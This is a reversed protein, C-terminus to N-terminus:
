SLELGLDEFFATDSMPRGLYAEISENEDRSSGSEFIERRLKLGLERNLIGKKKFGSFLDAAIVDAWAYGYYGSAYGVMHGWGAQFSTDPPLPLFIDESMRRMIETSDKQTGESHFELDARAFSLQRLYMMGIGAREAENLKKVMDPTIKKTPDKHQSIRQIMEFDWVWNEMIQSPAEVYDWAVHTGAFRSFKSRTLLTHLVHGFEHFLTEVEGHSLLCPDQKPFNCVMADVPRQYIQDPRLKGSILTFAAAHGYKGPRPFLDLYFYGLEEGQSDCVKFLRIEDAWKYFSASPQEEIKLSFLESVIGIMGELVRNLPFFEKLVQQDIDFTRKKHLANYYSYDWSQIKAKPDGTEQIKLKVLDNLEARAKIKLKKEFSKLFDLVTKSTKAMREEIVYDNYSTYGLLHAIEDRIAIMANLLKVNTTCATNYKKIQLRRRLDENKCFEMVPHYDPYDLSVRYQNKDNKKLNEIFSSDLGELEERHVWIEDDYDNIHKSFETELTSLQKQLDQLKEREALSLEMGMRKYDRLIEELYKQDEGSLKEGKAAYAKVAKYVNENYAKEVAWHQWEVEVEHAAIRLAEDTSVNQLFHIRNMVTSEQDSLDDLVGLTTAFTVEAPKQAGISQTLSKSKEILAKVSRRVEDASKEFAPTELVNKPKAPVPGISSGKLNM